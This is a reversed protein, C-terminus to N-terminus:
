KSASGALSNRQTIQTSATNFQEGGDGLQFSPMCTPACSYSERTMGRQVVLLSGTPEVRVMKEDLVNGSNDLAIINTQGYGKGTVVMTNSGKLLLVDAVIPSGVVLTKTGEPVHTIKAQDLTVVLTPGRPGDQARLSGIGVISAFVLGSLAAVVNLTKTLSVSAPMLKEPM